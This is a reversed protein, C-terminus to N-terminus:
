CRRTSRATPTTATSATRVSRRTSGSSRAASRPTAPTATRTSRPRCCCGSTRAHRAPQPLQHVADQGRAAAHPRPPDAPGEEAPPLEHVAEDAAAEAPGNSGARGGEPAPQPVPHLRDPPQRPMSGMWHKQNGKNHCDMCVASSEVSGLGKFVRIKTKDGANEAHAQGPGHCGECGQASSMHPTTKFANVVEEHCAVCTDMGVFGAPAAPQEVSATPAPPKRAGSAPSGWCSLWGPPGPWGHGGQRVCESSRRASRSSPVLRAGHPPIEGM